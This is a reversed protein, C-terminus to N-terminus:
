VQAFIWISTRPEGGCWLFLAQLFLGFYVSLMHFSWGFRVQKYIYYIVLFITISVSAFALGPAFALFLTDTSVQLFEKTTM